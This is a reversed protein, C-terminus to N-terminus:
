PEFEKEQFRKSCSIDAAPRRYTCLMMDWFFHIV